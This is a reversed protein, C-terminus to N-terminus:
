PFVQLPRTPQDYISLNSGQFDELEALNRSIAGVVAGLGQLNTLFCKVFGTYLIM